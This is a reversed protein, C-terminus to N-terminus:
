QEYLVTTQAMPEVGLEDALIQRCVRYQTLAAHRQGSYALLRM